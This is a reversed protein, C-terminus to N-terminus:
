SPVTNNRLSKTKFWSSGSTWFIILATTQLLIQISIIAVNGDISMITIPLGIVFLITYIWRAKNSGKFLYVYLWILILWTISMIILPFIIGYQSAIEPIQIIGMIVGITLNLCLMIIAFRIPSSM